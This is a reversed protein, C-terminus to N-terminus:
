TPTPSSCQLSARGKRCAFKHAPVYVSIWLVVVASAWRLYRVICSVFFLFLFNFSPDSHSGAEGCGARSAEARGLSGTACCRRTLSLRPGTQITATWSRQERFKEGYKLFFQGLFDVRCNRSRCVCSVSIFAFM